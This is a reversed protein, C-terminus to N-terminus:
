KKPRIMKRYKLVGDRGAADLRAKGQECMKCLPDSTRRASLPNRYCKGIADLYRSACAMDMMRCRYTACYIMEMM